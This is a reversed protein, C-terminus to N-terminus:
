EVVAHDVVGACAARLARARHVVHALIRPIEDHADGRERGRM